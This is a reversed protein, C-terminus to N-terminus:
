HMSLSLALTAFFYQVTLELDYYYFVLRVAICITPLYQYALIIGIFDDVLYILYPKIKLNHKYQVQCLVKSTLKIKQISPSKIKLIFFNWDFIILIEMLGWFVIRM